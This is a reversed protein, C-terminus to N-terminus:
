DGLVVGGNGEHEEFLAEFAEGAVDDVVCGVGMM